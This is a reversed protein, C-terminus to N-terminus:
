DLNVATFWSTAMASEFDTDDEDIHREWEQDSTRKVFSGKMTPTQFNVKDNKTDNAQEPAAFKGKALWTYRYHGNSKLSRFGVAVWPPADSGKRKLIGDSTYTHGLLAAQTPLTLEVTNLELDIAGLATAVESPGNDAFLTANDTNPNIKASIVGEIHVPASYTPTADAADTLMLAYYLNDLGIQVSM